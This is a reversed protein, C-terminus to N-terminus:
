KNAVGDKVSIVFVLVKGAPPMVPNVQNAIILKTKMFVITALSHILPTFFVQAM